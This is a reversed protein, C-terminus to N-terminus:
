EGLFELKVERGPVEDWIVGDYHYLEGDAGQYWGIETEM